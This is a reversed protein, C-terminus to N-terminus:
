AIRPKCLIECVRFDKFRRAFAPKVVIATDAGSDTGGIAIIECGSEIFGAELAMISIEVAVKMGQSFIRLTYAIISGPTIEGYMGETVGDALGHLSILVKVGAAEIKKREEDTMKWGMDDFSPSIGVAIVDVDNGKFIEAARLATYGHTTAVLVKQIGLETARQRAIACVTDTNTKGSKEFYTVSGEM